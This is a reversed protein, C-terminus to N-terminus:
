NLETEMSYLGQFVEWLTEKYHNVINCNSEYIQPYRQKINDRKTTTNETWVNARRAVTVYFNHLTAGM